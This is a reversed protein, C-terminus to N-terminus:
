ISFRDWGQSFAATIRGRHTKGVRSDTHSFKTGQQNTQPFEWVALPFVTLEGFLELRMELHVDVVIEAGAHSRLLGAALGQELEASDLSRRLGVAVVVCERKEFGETLIETVSAALKAAIGPEGYGHDEGECKGDSRVGGDEGDHVC